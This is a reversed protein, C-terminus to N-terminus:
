EDTLINVLAKRLDAVGEPFGCRRLLDNLENFLTELMDLRSELRAKDAYLEKVEVKM